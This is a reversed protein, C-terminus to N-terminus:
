SASSSLIHPSNKLQQVRNKYFNIEFISFDLFFKVGLFNLIDFFFEGFGDFVFFIKLLDAQSNFSSFKLKGGKWMSGDLQIQICNSNKSILHQIAQIQKTM